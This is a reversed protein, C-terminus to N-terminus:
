IKIGVTAVLSSLSGPPLLCSAGLCPPLLLQVLPLVACLYGSLVFSAARATHVREEEEEEVESKRRM